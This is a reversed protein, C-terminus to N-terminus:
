AISDLPFREGDEEFVFSNGYKSMLKEENM